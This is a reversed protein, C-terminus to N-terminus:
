TFYRTVLIWAEGIQFFEFSRTAMTSMNSSPLAVLGLGECPGVVM